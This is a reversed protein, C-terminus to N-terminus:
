RSRAAEGRMPRGRRMPEAMAPMTPVAAFSQRLRESAFEVAAKGEPVVAGTGFFEHTVGPYLRTETPIGATKLRDGL